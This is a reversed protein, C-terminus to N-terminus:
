SHTISIENARRVADVRGDVSARQPQAALARQLMQATVLLRWRGDRQSWREFGLREALALSRLNGEHIVATARRARVVTFAFTLLAGAAEFAYGHGAQNRALLWGAEVEREAAPAVRLHMSVDGILVGEREIALALFDDPRELVTHATRRRLHSRSEERSRLPWALYRVTEPDSQIRYWAEADRMSHPRLLLRDTTIRPAVVAPMRGHDPSIRAASLPWAREAGWATVAPLTSPSQLPSLTM